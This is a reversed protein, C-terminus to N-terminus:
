LPENRSEVAFRNPFMPRMSEKPEHPVRKSEFKFNLQEDDRLQNPRSIVTQKLRSRAIWNQVIGASKNQLIFRAVHIKMGIPKAIKLRAKQWQLARNPIRLELREESRGSLHCPNIM